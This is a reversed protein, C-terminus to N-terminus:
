GVEEDSTLAEAAAHDEAPLAPELRAALDPAYRALDRRLQRLALDKARVELMVDFPRLGEAQRLLDIFEFPNVYDAHHQWRAQRVRPPLSGRQEEVLWETRPTSFHIKPRVGAPWTALCDALAARPPRGDPNNLRHHLNDFVLRIGTREHVWLTDAVGFRVDDNELVLRRRVAEPLRDHAACFRDRAAARDGYVGGMHTVIVGEPGQRMADLIASQVILDAASREVLAPAAANLVVHQAPHFSLRLSAARATEGLQALEAACEAVQNHFQPMDPHTAYPALESSIRYMGIQAEALYAFVDRLYALSVSLHPSNQWRRSDHSKLEPRALPKVVFGLHMPLEKDSAAGSSYKVLRGDASLAADTRRSPPPLRGSENWLHRLLEGTTPDWIQVGACAEEPDDAPLQLGDCVSTMQRVKYLLGATPPMSYPATLSEYARHINGPADQPRGLPRAYVQVTESLAGAPFTLTVGEAALAVVGGAPGLKRTVAAPPAARVTAATQAVLTGDALRLEALM